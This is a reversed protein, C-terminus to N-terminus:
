QTPAAPLRPQTPTTILPGVVALGTYFSMQGSRVDVDLATRISRGMQTRGPFVRVELRHRGPPLGGLLFAGTPSLLTAVGLAPATVFYDGANSATVGGVQGAITTPRTMVVPPVMTIDGGSAGVNGIRTTLREGTGPIDTIATLSWTGPDLARINFHGDASCHSVRPTRDVLVQCSSARYGPIIEVTGVIEGLPQNNTEPPTCHLLCFATASTPVGLGTSWAVLSSLVLTAVSRLPYAVHLGNEASPTALPPQLAQWPPQRIFGAGAVM